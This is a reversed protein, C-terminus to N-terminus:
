FQNGRHGREKHGGGQLTKSFERKLLFWELKQKPTLVSYIKMECEEMKKDGEDKLKKLEVLVKEFDEEKSKPNQLVDHAKKKLNQMKERHSIRFDDNEKLIELIKLTQSETLNLRDKMKYALFFRAKEREMPSPPTEEEMMNQPGGPPPPPPVQGLTYIIFFGFILSLIVRKM